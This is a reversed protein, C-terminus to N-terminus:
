KRREKRKENDSLLGDMFKGVAESICMAATVFISEEIREASRRGIRLVLNKSVFVGAAYAKPQIWALLRKKPCFRLFASVGVLVGLGVVWSQMTENM